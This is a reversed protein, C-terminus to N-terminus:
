YCSYCSSDTLSVCHTGWSRLDDVYLDRLCGHGEGRKPCMYIFGKDSYGQFSYSEGPGVDVEFYEGGRLPYSPYYVSIQRVTTGSTQNEFVVTCPATSDVGADVTVQICSQGMLGPTSALLLATLHKAPARSRRRMKM